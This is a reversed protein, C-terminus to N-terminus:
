VHARGIEFENDLSNDLQITDCLLKVNQIQWVQSIDAGTTAAGAIQAGVSLISDTFQNVIELELVIQCYRLPLYKDQAFLGCMPTFMLTQSGGAGPIVTLIDDTADSGMEIADNLRKNKPQLLNFMQSLRGFEDIDEILAGGAMIRLRRFFVHAGGIPYLRQAVNGANNVLDFSLKVTTPDLWTDGTLPIRIVKTGQPSYVNSGSPWYTSNRRSTVYSSGPRLKFSLGEILHDEVSQAHHEM